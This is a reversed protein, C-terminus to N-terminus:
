NEEESKEVPLPIGLRIYGRKFSLFRKFRFGYISCEGYM